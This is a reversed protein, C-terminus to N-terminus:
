GLAVDLVMMLAFGFAFALVLADSHKNEKEKTPLLDEVVVYIMAGAAFSLAYPLIPKVYPAILLAILAVIPEVIGSFIGLLFAKVKGEKEKLPLSAILGEPLNQVAIGIALILSSMVGINPEYLYPALGVGVALGEPINHITLALFLMWERSIKAKHGEPANENVHLHPVAKDIGFLLLVGLLFGVLLPVWAFGPLSEEGSTIAPALLSFFSAAVMVGGAFGTLINEWLPSLSKKSILAGGSGLITGLFPVLIVIAVQWM